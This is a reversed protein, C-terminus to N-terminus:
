AFPLWNLTANARQQVATVAGNATKALDQLTWLYDAMKKQEGLPLLPVTIDKLARRPVGSSGPAAQNQPANLCFRLYSSGLVETNEVRLARAAHGLAFPMDFIAALSMVQADNNGILPVIIDGDRLPEFGPGAEVRRWSTAVAGLGQNVDERNFPYVTASPEFDAHVEAGGHCRVLRLVGDDILDTLKVTRASAGPTYDADEVAELAEELKEIAHDYARDAKQKGARAQEATLPAALRVSPQLSTGDLLEAMTIKGVAADAIGGTAGTRLARVLKALQHTNPAKGTADVLTVETATEPSREHRLLLVSTGIASYSLVKRPLEIVAELMGRAALQERLRTQSTASLLATPVLVYATGGPSLRTAADIVFAAEGSYSGRVGWLDRTPPTRGLLEKLRLGMPPETVLVDAQVEPFISEGLANGATITATIGHLWLRTRAIDALVSEVENGYVRTGPRSAKKALRLLTDGSGCAPDMIIASEDALGTAAIEALLTSSASEPHGLYGRDASGLRGFAAQVALETVRDFHVMSQSLLVDRLEGIFSEDSEAFRHDLVKSLEAPALGREEQAQLLRRAAALIADVNAADRFETAAPQDGAEERVAKGAALLGLSLAVSGAADSGALRSSSVWDTLVAAVDRAQEEGLGRNALWEEVEDAAFVVQRGRSEPAPAPFDAHRGRWNSVATRTVGARDAIQQLTMLGSHKPTM